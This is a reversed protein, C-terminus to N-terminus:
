SLTRSNVSFAKGGGMSLVASAADIMSIEDRERNREDRLAENTLILSSDENIQSFVLERNKYLTLYGM